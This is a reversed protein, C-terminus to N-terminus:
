DLPRILTTDELRKGATQLEEVFQIFKQLQLIREEVSLKLNQRILSRDVDKKYLDIIAQM